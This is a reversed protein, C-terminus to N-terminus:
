TQKYKPWRLSYVTILVILALGFFTTVIMSASKSIIFAIVYATNSIVFIIGVIVNIWRSAADKLFLTLVAMLLSFIVWFVSNGTSMISQFLAPLTIGLSKILTFGFFNVISFSVWFVAIRTKLGPIGM